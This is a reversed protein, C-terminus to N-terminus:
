RKGLIKDIKGEMQEAEVATLAGSEFDARWQAHAPLVRVNEKAKEAIYGEPESTSPM